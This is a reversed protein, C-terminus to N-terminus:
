GSITSITFRWFRYLFSVRIESYNVKIRRARRINKLNFLTAELTFLTAELTFLTAELTFLTAELTFLTAELTFLTAELTFLTAELGFFFQWILFRLVKFKM